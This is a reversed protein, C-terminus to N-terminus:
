EQNTLAGQNPVLQHAVIFACNKTNNPPLCTITTPAHNITPPMTSCDIPKYGVKTTLTLNPNWPFTLIFPAPAGPAGAHAPPIYQITANYNGRYNGSVNINVIGPFLENNVSHISFTNDALLPYTRVISDNLSIYDADTMPVSVSDLVISPTKVFVIRFGLGTIHERLTGGVGVNDRLITTTVSLPQQGQAVRAVRGLRVQEDFINTFYRQADIATCAPNNVEIFKQLVNQTVPVVRTYIYDYLTETIEFINCVVIKFLSLHAVQTTAGVRSGHADHIIDIISIILFKLKDVGDVIPYITRLGTLERIVADNDIGNFNIVGDVVNAQILSRLIGVDRILKESKKKNEIQKKEEKQKEKLTLQKRVM